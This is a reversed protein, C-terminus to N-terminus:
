SCPCAPARASSRWGRRAACWSARRGASSSIESSSTSFIAIQDRGSVTPQWLVSISDYSCTLRFFARRQRCAPGKATFVPEFRVQLGPRMILSGFKAGPCFFSPYGVADIFAYGAKVAAVKGVLRLPAILNAPDRPRFQIRSAELAPFERRFTQAFIEKAPSFEHNMFLMGGLTAVFRPDSLGVPHEIEAGSCM